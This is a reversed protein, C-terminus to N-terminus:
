PLLHTTRYRSRSFTLGFNKEVARSGGAFDLLLGKVCCGNRGDGPGNRIRRHNNEDEMNELRTVAAFPRKARGSESSAAALGDSPAVDVFITAAM